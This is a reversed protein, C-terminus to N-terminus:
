YCKSCPEYGLREAESKTVQRAKDPNMRGCNNKNHYKEGTAPLWVMVDVTPQKTPTPAITPTPTSTPAVTPTPTNTPAVTPMPTSTPVMTPTPTSTPAVTPTPTNTPAVTPSPTNTPAVTPSPTNTPAMTPSPTNTPVETVPMPTSTAAKEEAEGDMCVTVNSSGTEVAEGMDCAVCTMGLVLMLLVAFIKRKMGMGRGKYRESRQREKQM